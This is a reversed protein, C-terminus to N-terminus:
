PKGPTVRSWAPRVLGTPWIVSMELVRLRFMRAPLPINNRTLLAFYIEPFFAKGLILKPFFLDELSALIGVHDHGGPFRSTRSSFRDRLRLLGKTPV